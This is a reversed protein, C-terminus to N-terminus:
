SGEMSSLMSSMNLLFFDFSLAGGAACFAGAAAGVGATLSSAAFPGSERTTDCDESSVDDDDSSSPEHESSEDDEAGEELSSSEESEESSSFSALKWLSLPTKPAMPLFGVTMAAEAPVERDDLCAVEM